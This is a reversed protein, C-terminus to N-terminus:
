FGSTWNWGNKGYFDEMVDRGSVIIHNSDNTYKMEKSFVITM